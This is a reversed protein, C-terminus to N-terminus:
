NTKVQIQVKPFKFPRLILSSLRSHSSFSPFQLFSRFSSIAHIYISLNSFKISRNTKVHRTFYKILHFIGDATRCICNRRIIIAFIHAILKHKEPRMPKIPMECGNVQKHCYQSSSIYSANVNLHNSSFKAGSLWQKIYIAGICLFFVAPFPEGEDAAKLMFKGIM